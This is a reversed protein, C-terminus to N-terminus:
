TVYVKKGTQAHMKRNKNINMQIKTKISLHKCINNPKHQNFM